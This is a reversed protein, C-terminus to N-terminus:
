KKVFKQMEEYTVDRHEIERIKKAYERAEELMVRKAPSYKGPLTKPDAFFCGCDPEKIDSNGSM